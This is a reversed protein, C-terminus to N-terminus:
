ALASDKSLPFNNYLFVGPERVRDKLSISFNQSSRMQACALIRCHIMKVFRDKSILLINSTGQTCQLPKYSIFVHLLSDKILTTVKILAKQLKITFDLSLFTYLFCFIEHYHLIRWQNLTHQSYKPCNYYILHYLYMYSSNNYILTTFKTVIKQPTKIKLLTEVVLVKNYIHIAVHM